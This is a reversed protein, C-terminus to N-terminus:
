ECSQFSRFYRLKAKPYFATTPPHHHHYLRIREQMEKKLLEIQMEIYTRQSTLDRIMDELNCRTDVKQQLANLDLLLLRNELFYLILLGGHVACVTFGSIGAIYIWVYADLLGGLLLGIFFSGYVYM